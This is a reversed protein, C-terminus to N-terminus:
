EKEALSNHIQTHTHEASVNNYGMSNSCIYPLPCACRPKHSDATSLVTYQNSNWQNNVCVAGAGEKWRVSRDEGRRDMRFTDNRFAGACEECVVCCLM